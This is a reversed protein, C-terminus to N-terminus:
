FMSITKLLNLYQTESPLASNSNFQFNYFLDGYKKSFSIKIESHLHRTLYAAPLEFNRNLDLVFDFKFHLLNTFNKLKVLQFINIKEKTLFYVSQSKVRNDSKPLIFVLNKKSLSKQLENIFSLSATFDNDNFPLILLGNKSSSFSKTFQTTPDVMSGFLYKSYLIGFFQFINKIM